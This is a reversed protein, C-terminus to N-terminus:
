EVQAVLTWTSPRFRRLAQARTRDAGSVGPHADRVTVLLREDAQGASARARALDLLVEPRQPDDADGLLELAAELHRAAAHYVNVALAQRGAEALAHSARAALQPSATGTQRRLSLATEYHHALLEAKDDREGALLEIWEAPQEHKTAREGRPIQRYAVERTLAHAFSFEVDGAVSTCRPSRSSARCNPWSRISRSPESAAASFNSSQAECYRRLYRSRRGPATESTSSDCAVPVRPAAAAIATILAETPSGLHRCRPEFRAVAPRSRPHPSRARRRSGSCSVSRARV